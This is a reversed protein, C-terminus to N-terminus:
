QEWHYCHCLELPVFSPFLEKWFIWLLQNLSETIGYWATGIESVAPIVPVFQSPLWIMWVGWCYRNQLLDPSRFPVCWCLLANVTIWVCWVSALVGSQLGSAWPLSAFAHEALYSIRWSWDLPCPYTVTSSYRNPRSGCLYRTATM